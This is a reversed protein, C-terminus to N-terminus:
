PDQECSAEDHKLWLRVLHEHGAAMALDVASNGAADLALPDAGAAVLVKMVAERHQQAESLQQAQWVDVLADDGVPPFRLFEAEDTLGPWMLQQCPAAALLLLPTQGLVDAADVDAGHDLLLRVIGASCGHRIAVCLPPEAGYEMVLDSAAEPNEELATKVDSLSDNCLAALLPPLSASARPAGPPSRLARCSSVGLPTRPPTTPQRMPRPTAPPTSSPAAPSAAAAFGELQVKALGSASAGARESPSDVAFNTSDPIPPPSSLVQMDEKSLWLRDDHFDQQGLLLDDFFVQQGLFKSEACSSGSFRRCFLPHDAVSALVVKDVQGTPANPGLSVRRISSCRDGWSPTERSFTSCPSWPSSEGVDDEPMEPSPVATSCGDDLQQWVVAKGPKPTGADVSSLAAM